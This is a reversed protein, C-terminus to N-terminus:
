SRVQERLEDIKDYLRRHEADNAECSRCDNLEHDRLKDNISKLREAFMVLNRLLYYYHGIVAGVFLVISVTLKLSVSMNEM